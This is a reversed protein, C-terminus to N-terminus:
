MLTYIVDHGVAINKMRDAISGHKGKFRFTHHCKRVIFNIYDIIKRRNAKPGTFLLNVSKYLM